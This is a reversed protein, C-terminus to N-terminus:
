GKQLNPSPSSLLPPEARGNFLMVNAHQRVRTNGNNGITNGNNSSFPRFWEREGPNGDPRTNGVGLTWGPNYLWDRSLSTSDEHRM